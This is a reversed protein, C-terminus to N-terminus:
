RIQDVARNPHEDGQHGVDRDGPWVELARRCRAPMQVERVRLADVLDDTLGGFALAPQVLSGTQVADQRELVRRVVALM